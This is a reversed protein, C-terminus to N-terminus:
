EKEQSLRSEIARLISSTRLRYEDTLSISVNHWLASDVQLEILIAVNGGFTGVFDKELHCGTLADDELGFLEALPGEAIVDAEEVALEIPLGSKEEVLVDAM